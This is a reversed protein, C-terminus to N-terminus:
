QGFAGRRKFFFFILLLVLIIAEAHFLATMRTYKVMSLMDFLSFCFLIINSAFFDVFVLPMGETLMALLVFPHFTFLPLV